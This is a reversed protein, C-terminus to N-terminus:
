LILKQFLREGIAAKLKYVSAAYIYAEAENFEKSINGRTFESEYSLSTIASQVQSLNYKNKM